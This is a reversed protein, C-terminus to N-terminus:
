YESVGEFTVERNVQEQMKVDLLANKVQVNNKKAYDVAQQISFEHRTTRATDPPQAVAIAPLLALVYLWVIGKSKVKM